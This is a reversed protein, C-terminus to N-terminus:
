PLVQEIRLLGTDFDVWQESARVRGGEMWFVNRFSMQRGAADLGESTCAELHRLTVHARGLVVIRETGERTLTCTVRTEFLRGEGRRHRLVRTYRGGGAALAQATQRTDATDLDALFGVTGRLVGGEALLVSSGDNATYFVVGNAAGSFIYGASQEVPARSVVRVLPQTIGAAALQERTAEFRSPEDGGRLSDAIPSLTDQLSSRSEGCGSLLAGIIALAIPQFRTM